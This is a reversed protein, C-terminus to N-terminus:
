RGARMLLQDLETAAARRLAPSDASVFTKTAFPQRLRVLWLGPDLEVEHRQVAARIQRRLMNRSVARRAHRKPIVCGWWRSPM